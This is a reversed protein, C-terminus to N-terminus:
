FGAMLRAESHDTRSSASIRHAPLTRLYSDTQAPSGSSPAFRPIAYADPKMSSASQDWAMLRPFRQMSRQSGHVM